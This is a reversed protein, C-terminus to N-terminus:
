GVVALPVEGVVADSDSQVEEQMAYMVVEWHVLQAEDHRGCEENDEGCGEVPERVDDEVPVPIHRRRHETTAYKAVDAIVQRVVEQVM